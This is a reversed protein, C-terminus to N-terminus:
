KKINSEASKNNEIVNFAKGICKIIDSAIISEMSSGSTAIDGALGHIFVGAVAADAPAYGQALLSLIMGTLVDGSGGTAMGPNGTSNFFVNGDPLSISTCAGKLVVICKYKASFEIQKMLRSYGNPSDGALRDFEGPHPTLISFPQLLDLWQKNLSLINLGDADIVVPKNCGKLFAHVANQTEVSTGIGPGIGVADFKDFAVVDTIMSESSDTIVMAEPLSGQMATYGCGPIHCTILGLGTRLAAESSLIAAGIKGYSGSVLLGHGYDGKHSFKRRKKLLPLIDVLEVIRYPTQISDIANKHLRIDLLHWEGTCGANEAFMFALKPFQFCLTHNAKVVAEYDNNNNNECFLGSPMDVAIKLSASENIHKVVAAALGTIANKIGSGFIADVIIDNDSIFPLEGADSIVHLKLLKDSELRKRNVGWDHSTKETFSIYFTEVHYGSESLMRALALGDGGNNGPGTFIM